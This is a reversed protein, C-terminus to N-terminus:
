RILMFKDMRTESAYHIEVFYLGSSANGLWKVQNIGRPFNGDAITAVKQGLLNYIYAKVKGEGPINFVFTFEANGPNPNIELIKFEYEITSTYGPEAEVVPETTLSVDDIYWGLTPNGYTTDALTRFRIRLSDASIYDDLQVIQHEWYGGAGALTDLIIWSEGTNIEVFGTDNQPVFFYNTWYELSLSGLGGPTWPNKLTLILSDSSPLGSEGRDRASGLPSYFRVNQVNWNSDAIWKALGSDFDDFLMSSARTFFFEPTITENVGVSSDKASFYYYYNEGENLSNWIFDTRFTDGGTHTMLVTEYNMGQPCYNFNVESLGMNDSASIFVEDYGSPFVTNPITDTFTIVPPITDSGVYFSYLAQPADPPNFTLGGYVDAASLFYSVTQKNFPGPIEAQFTDGTTHEMNVSQSLAGDIGWTVLISATDLPQDATIVANIVFETALTDETDNLPEHVIIPMLYTSDVFGREAFNDIIIFRYDGNNIEIDASLIANAADEMTAGNGLYYHHQFVIADWIEVDPVDYWVDILGASWLQGSDHIEGGANEPYHYPMNLMRGAWFENHGDWTFVWEPHFESNLVLSYSGAIYDGFGEGMAGTHGGSWGPLIAYQMAHGYEHIIVDADEADDVGGSGYTIIGTMPSFWSNDQTTGNVNFPFSYDLLSDFGLYQIYRQYTDIHYYVNVEEFRDDERLYVFDPSTEQARNETPETNVYAGSLYYYGGYEEDLELLDVIVYCDAPIADNSDNGDVLTDSEIATKPDPIFVKGTGTVYFRRVDQMSLIEGSHADVLIEWDGFPETAPLQWEYVLRIEGKIEAIVLLTQGPARLTALNITDEILERSEILSLTPSVNFNEIPYLNNFISIIGGSQNFAIVIEANKVPLNKYYQRYRKQNGTNTTRNSVLKLVSENDLLGIQNKYMAFFQEETVPVKPYWRSLIDRDADWKSSLAGRAPIVAIESNDEPSAASPITKASVTGVLLLVLLVPTIHLKLQFM